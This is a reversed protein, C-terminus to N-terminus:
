KRWPTAQHEFPSQPIQLSLTYRDRHSFSASTETMGHQTFSQTQNSQYAPPESYKRHSYIQSCQYYAETQSAERQLSSDWCSSSCSSAQSSLSCDPTQSSQYCASTQWSQWQNFSDHYSTSFSSVQPRSWPRFWFLMLM